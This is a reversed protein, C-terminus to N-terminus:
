WGTHRSALKLEWSVLMLREGLDLVQMELQRQVYRFSKDLNCIYCTLGLTDVGCFFGLTEM